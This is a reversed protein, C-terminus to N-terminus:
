EPEHTKPAQAMEEQQDPRSGSLDWPGQGKGAREIVRKEEEEIVSPKSGFFDVFQHPYVHRSTLWKQAADYFAFTWHIKNDKKTPHLGSECVASEAKGNLEPDVDRIQMVLKTLSEQTDASNAYHNTASWGVRKM